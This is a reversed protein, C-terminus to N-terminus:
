AVEGGKPCGEKVFLPIAMFFLVALKLKKIM